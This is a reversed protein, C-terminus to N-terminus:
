MGARAPQRGGFIEVAERGATMQIARAPCEAVCMGCGDCAVDIIRAAKGTTADDFVVEVAGHPCSRLCTLCLACKSADVFARCAAVAAEGRGILNHVELATSRAETLIDTVDFSGRCVGVFFIGKRNSATPKLWVNNEQLYDSSDLTVQLLNHLSATNSGPRIREPLVLLDCEIEILGKWESQTAASSDRVTVSFGTDTSSIQPKDDDFKVIVIGRSRADRYLRELGESSVNVNQCCVFVNSRSWKQAALAGRLASASHIASDEGSDEVIFCVNKPIASPTRGGASYEGRIGALRKALASHTVANQPFDTDPLEIEVDLGTAVVIAGFDRDITEGGRDLQVRFNGASGELGVISTQLLFHICSDGQAATIRREILQAPEEALGYLAQFGAADGAPSNGQEVLTTEYGLSALSLAAEIGSLGGGVVLVQKDMSVKVANSSPEATVTKNM